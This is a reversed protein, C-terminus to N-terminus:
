TTIVDHTNDYTIDGAPISFTQQVTREADDYSVRLWVGHDGIESRRLTDRLDAQRDFFSANATRWASQAANAILTQHFAGASPVGVLKVQMAEADYFLHYSFLGSDIIGGLAANYFRSEPAFGVVADAALGAGSGPGGAGD